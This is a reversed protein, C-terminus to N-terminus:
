KKAKVLRKKSKPTVIGNKDNEYDTEIYERHAKWANLLDQLENKWIKDLSTNRLDNLKKSLEDVEKELIIKRDYTLQSIPMRLLYNYGNDDSVQENAGDKTDDNTDDDKSIKPYKLEVLKAIIEAIKKNMVVIRGEIVDIIFRIKASLVKFDKELIKIQYKKRKDYMQIRVKCWERIIDSTNDYKKIAGVNSYLHMNNISMNKSSVLKFESEFKNGLKGRVDGNFNLVFKVNKSTYHNDFSKLYNSGSTIMNELYEKYDETWTGIPLETIELTNDDIWSYVGTSVYSGKDSKLIKGTHGLYWPVFEEIKMKNIFSQSETVDKDAIGNCVKMCISIIDEPNFQPINTSFGTGIGVGGNVLIMPIVPIYFEPEISQGDEELYNLINSDEDRYILRTLESVLTFIYRPSSADSGGVLRSNHTITFDGLLFRENGDVSWGCFKDEGLKKITFAFNYPNIIREKLFKIKKREVRTPIEDINHGSILLTTNSINERKKTMKNTKSVSVSTRYGLSNALFQISKILEFRLRTSQTIEIIPIGNNYKVSGDTDIIGALLQLRTTKNNHIYNLPIHKNNFLDCKKLIEKWPNMDNRRMGNSATGNFLNKNVKSKEFKWNCIKHINDTTQCGICSKPNHNEDGISTRHGNGQKRVTFHYGDHKKGNKDINNIDHVLECSLTDLYMAFSQLVEEDASAIGTGNSNGDGLWIGLVYPDIEIDQYDWNICQSNKVCYFRKKNSDSLKLFDDIKIDFIEDNNEESKNLSNVYELIKHYAEERSLKSKNYTNNISREITSISKSVVKNRTIDYYDVKWQKTSEKYWISKNGKFKLTLIHQSNVVYKEGNVMSIEYMTDVGQTTKLVNRINGDDGVLKDGVVIDKAKKIRSDWMLIDTNPDLCGFQGNPKLLNINNTGVFIQAMGIIAQQLSQEGHHYATVESVNGALQAVKIENTFLRRKICAFLIKRTSEKLGDCIHNISRELDRNSFHILDKNVFEEYKVETKSYDLVDNKEYKMLWKKRDDARKKNFALDIYEDSKNTHIYTVSKMEKFYEKAEGDSSTGLGKYYKIKWTGTSNKKEASELWKEYDSMNYFSIVNKDGGGGGSNTAKIIPTLMSTLFGDVKYLSPWLSQFVNFLLGKIHSGDHDQDTLIMIKGYRLTSMNTYNKNQELGIIKKLATIEANDSIKQLSADKVNMVKGRLPFVGYRDRGVISLGAVAMTKASDGETLILTCKESDKTGALNADDLKPIILRSTKKGDTKSLKKANQFETLSLAKEVINTKYLKEIFKDSIDCKSGFKSVPTTLTEKSQSDFAPNVITSKIFVFLNDKLIQPKIVKKKKSEIMDSLKKIITNTIFNTHTGGRITNIGNVFSIQEFIGNKSLGVAIEWRENCNEYILPSETKDIFLESYKEFDKIPLKEENFYISVNKNTCAAADITRRRFLDYMDDTIGKLGFREYDPLFTIKTYPQKSSSRVSPKDKELMNNRYKQTFIRQRYHDVTEVQFEKSFINALKMGYGGKGGIIKEEQHNYNTSTLLNGVVLEPVYMNETEHMVVDIGNGDNYVSLVGSKKDITVRINRMHKVDKKGKGEEIILRVSHDIANVIVEDFIKLLGPVYNINKADMKKSEDNFLYIDLNIPNISGIYTDPINYIHERLEYKKYKEEIKQTAM